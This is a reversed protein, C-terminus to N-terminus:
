GLGSGTRPPSPSSEVIEVEIHQYTQGTCPCMELWYRIEAEVKRLAEDRTPATVSVPGVGPSAHEATWTVIRDQLQCIFKM